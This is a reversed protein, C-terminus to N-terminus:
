TNNSTQPNPVQSQRSPKPIRCDHSPAHQVHTAEQPQTPTHTHTHTCTYTHTRTHTHTHTHTHARTRAHTYMHTHTTCEHTHTCTHTRAHTCTHTHQASTHTQTRLSKQGIKVCQLVSAHWSLLKSHILGWLESIDTIDIQTMTSSTCM